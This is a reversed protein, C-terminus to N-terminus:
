SPDKEAGQVAGILQWDEYGAQLESHIKGKYLVIVRDCIALDDDDASVVLLTRGGDRLSALSEYISEKATMDVGATPHVLVLTDPNSALARALVVKQQNGGSLEEVSQTPGDCKIAWTSSLENFRKRRKQANVLGFRNRFNDLVTLTANEEVSMEPVYGNVHRDEPVFGIGASIASAENGNGVPISRHTMSGADLGLQGAIAQALQIHGAGDLGTLGVCEGAKLMLDVGRVREGIHAGSVQLLTEGPLQRQIRTARELKAQASSNAEEDSIGAMVNVIKDVNLETTPATLVDVGDRLITVSDCVVFVEDLHHSVYIVTVGARRLRNIQEFLEQSGGDDLGATPEDLLLIQPGRSLARCIEVIKKELPELDEVSRDVLHGYGWDTLQEVAKSRLLKWDVTGWRTRPYTGLSINEAVTLEEVLTSKQYVCAIADSGSDETINGSADLLRISGSDPRVLGTLMAILTSKGAGNRGLLARSEGPRVLLNAGGLAQTSGFSKKLSRIEIAFEPNTTSM